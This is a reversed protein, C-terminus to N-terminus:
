SEPNIIDKFLTRVSEGPKQQKTWVSESKCFSDLHIIGAFKKNRNMIEKSHPALETLLSRRLQLPSAQFLSSLVFAGNTDMALDFLHPKLYKFLRKVQKETLLGQRRDLMLQLVRSYHRDTAFDVLRANSKLIRLFHKFDSLVNVILKREFKLMHLLISAGTARLHIRTKEPPKCSTLALWLQGKSADMDSGDDTPTEEVSREDANDPSDPSPAGDSRQGEKARSNKDKSGKKKSDKVTYSSINLTSMLKKVFLAQGTGLTVAAECLRWILAASPSLLLNGIDTTNLLEELHSTQFYRHGIISQIVYNGFQNESLEQARTAVMTKFVRNFDENSCIELCEQAAFSLTKSETCRLFCHELVKNCLHSVNSGPRKQCMKLVLCVTSSSQSTSFSGGLDKCFLDAWRELRAFRWEDLEHKAHLLVEIKETPKRKASRFPEAHVACAIAKILSRLVHSGSQHHLMRFLCRDEVTAAFYQLPESLNLGQHEFLTGCQLTSQLVHSGFQDMSLTEVDGKMMLHTCISQCLQRKEDLENEPDEMLSHALFAILKEVYRSLSQHTALTPIHEQIQSFANAALLYKESATSEEQVKDICERLSRLYKEVEVFSLM